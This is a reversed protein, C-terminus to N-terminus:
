ASHLPCECADGDCESHRGCICRYCCPYDPFTVGDPAKKRADAHFGCAFLMQALAIEHERPSIAGLEREVLDLWQQFAIISEPDVVEDM